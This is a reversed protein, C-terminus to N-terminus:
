LTYVPWVFFRIFYAFEVLRCILFWVGALFNSLNCISMISLSCVVLRTLLQKDFTSWEVSKVSNLM